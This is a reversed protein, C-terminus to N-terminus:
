PLLARYELPAKVNKVPMARPESFRFPTTASLMQISSEMILTENPGACGQLRATNNMGSSFGTFNDNPGFMGVFLPALNVGISVALEGLHEFGPRTPFAMTMERIRAAARIASELRDAPSADYFPPGFLAIICDGVMKDFVGGESWVIEVAERSWAEVLMAVKEPSKLVQESLRTFGSIDAYVIGVTEERPALYQKRYDDTHLLRAVDEERFSAALTRWEKNFDVIRQRVFGAFASLLDRDYTNFVDRVATVVLKGVVVSRTIGNILVEEQPRPLKLETLLERSRGEFYDRALEQILATNANSMTDLCLEGNRFLQVQLSSTAQEESIYIFLVEQIPVTEHLIKVAEALGERMVRNRLAHAVRLMAQHKQRAAYLGYLYNDLVECVVRLGSEVAAPDGKEFRAGACGFWEGAVDLPELVTQVGESKAHLTTRQEPVMSRLLSSDITAADPWQFTHLALDEGYTHVFVCTAGLTDAVMPLLKSMTEGISFHGVLALELLDDVNNRLTNEDM